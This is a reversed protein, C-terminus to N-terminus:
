WLNGYYSCFVIFVSGSVLLSTVGDFNSYLSYFIGRLGLFTMSVLGPLLILFLIQVLVRIFKIRKLKKM